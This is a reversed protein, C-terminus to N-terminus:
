MQPRRCIIAHWHALFILHPNHKNSIAQCLSYRATRKIRNQAFSQGPVRQDVQALPIVRDNAQIAPQRPLTKILRERNTMIGGERKTETIIYRRRM